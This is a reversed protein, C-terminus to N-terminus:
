IRNFVEGKPLPSNKIWEINDKIKWGDLNINKPLVVEKFINLRMSRFKFVEPNNKQYWNNLSIFPNIDRKDHLTLVIGDIFEYLLNRIKNKASSKATYLYIKCHDNEKRIGLCILKLLMFDLLLPEGGTLIIEDYKKYSKVIPLKNLNWDNNCCGNCKRNCRSTVLLRLKM